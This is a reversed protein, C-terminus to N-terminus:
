APQAELVTRLKEFTREGTQKWHLQTQYSRHPRFTRRCEEVSTGMINIDDINTEGLGAKGCFYLYGISDLDFGMLHAAVADVAIGDTGAIAIRWDVRNGSVPGDGEMAAFGDLISLHPPIIRILQYLFLHMNLYGQHLRVKDSGSIKTIGIRSLGQFSFFPKVYSPVYTFFRDAVCGILNFFSHGMNRILSGVAMNKLSLTVIATDHTKPISLSIRHDSELVTKAIRFAIPNLAKDYLTFTEYEDRNLDRLDIDNYRDVLDNFGFNRFGDFTDHFAAGEAIIVPDESHKRLFDLVARAAERHTSALQHETSVFNPKILHTTGCIAESGLLDLARTINDYRDLGTVIAVSPM